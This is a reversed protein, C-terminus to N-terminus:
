FLLKGIGDLIGQDMPTYYGTYFRYFSVAMVAYIMLYIMTEIFGTGSSDPKLWLPTDGVVYHLFLLLYPLISFYLYINGRIFLDPQKIAGFTFVSFLLFVDGYKQFVKAKPFKKVCYGYILLYVVMFAFRVVGNSMVNEYSTGGGFGYANIKVILAHIMPIGEYRELFKLILDIFSFASLCILMLVQKPIVRMLEIMVRIGILIWVSNHIFALAIYAIFCLLKNANRVLDKYFIYAFLAYCLMYRLGSITRFDLMVLLFLFCFSIKWDDIDEGIDDAAMLIISSTSTYIIFATIVTLLEDIQLLSIFYAYILYLPASQYVSELIENHRSFNGRLIDLLSSRRLIHLSEYHRYLDYRVTPQFFFYLSSIGFSALIMYARMYKKPVFFGIGGWFLITATIIM